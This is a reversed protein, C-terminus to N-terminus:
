QEGRIRLSWTILSLLWCLKIKIYFSPSVHPDVAKRRYYNGSGNVSNFGRSTCWVPPRQCKQRGGEEGWGQSVVPGLIFSHSPQISVHLFFFFFTLLADPLFNFEAFFFFTGKQATQVKDDATVNLFLCVWTNRSVQPLASVQSIVYSMVNIIKWRKGSNVMKTRKQRKKWQCSSARRRM